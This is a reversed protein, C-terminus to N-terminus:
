DEPNASRNRSETRHLEAGSGKQHHIQLERALTRRARFLLVKVHTKTKRLVRGIQEVTMEQSYKLWLAQFQVDPLRRRAIHWINAREEQRALLEAPNDADHEEPLPESQTRPGVRYHDICKRRAITFLWPAFNQQVDFTSISKFAQVFADQTIELADERNRCSNLVFGYIQNEYRYVLEEFSALSGEQTRRALEADPVVTQGEGRNGGASQESVPLAGSAQDPLPCEEQLHPDLGILQENQSMLYQAM